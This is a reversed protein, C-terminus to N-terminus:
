IPVIFVDVYDPPSLVLKLTLMLTGALTVINQRAM